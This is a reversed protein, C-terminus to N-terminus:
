HVEDVVKQTKYQMMYFRIKLRRDLLVAAAVVHCTAFAIVIETPNAQLRRVTVVSAIAVLLRLRRRSIIEFPKEMIARSEDRM